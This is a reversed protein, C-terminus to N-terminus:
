QQGIRQPLRTLPAKALCKNPWSLLVRHPDQCDDLYPHHFDANVKNFGVYGPLILLEKKKRIKDHGITPEANIFNGFVEADALVGNICPDGLAAHWGVLNPPQPLKLPDLYIAPDFNASGTIIRRRLWRM